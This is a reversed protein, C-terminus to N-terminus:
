WKGIPCVSHQLKTKVVMFCLCEKCQKTLHNFRDCEYCIDYRTDALEKSALFGSEDLEDPVFTTGDYKWGEQVTEHQEKTMPVIVPTASMAEVMPKNKDHIGIAGVFKGDVVCGFYEFNPTDDSM